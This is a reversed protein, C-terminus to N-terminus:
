GVRSAVWIDAVTRGDLPWWESSCGSWGGGDANDEDADDWGGGGGGCAEVEDAVLVVSRKSMLTDAVSWRITWCCGSMDAGTAAMWARSSSILCLVAVVMDSNM